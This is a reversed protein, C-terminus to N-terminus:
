RDAEFIVKQVKMGLYLIAVVYGLLHQNKKLAELAQPFVSRIPCRGMQVKLNKGYAEANHVGVSSIMGWPRLLEFASRLAPSLEVVEILADAGRGDTLKKVRKDLGAWGESPVSDVAFIHKPKYELANILACPGVPGCWILVVIQRSIQELTYEKFANRAAFYVTPFNDGMLVLYKEEVGRRTKTM